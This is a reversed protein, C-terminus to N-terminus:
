VRRSASLSLMTRIKTSSPVERFINYAVSTQTPHKTAQCSKDLIVTTGRPRDRFEVKPRLGGESLAQRYWSQLSRTNRRIQANVLQFASTSGATPIEKPYALSFSVCPAM